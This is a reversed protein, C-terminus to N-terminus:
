DVPLYDKNKQAQCVTVGSFNILFYKKLNKEKWSLVSLLNFQGADVASLQHLLIIRGSDVV